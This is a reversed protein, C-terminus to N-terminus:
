FLDMHLMARYVEAEALADCLADHPNSNTVHFKRCLSALGVKNFPVKEGAFAARDNMSLALLMADRAHPHFLKDVLDVGLWAKLFSAEFAWNHALPVLTKGFPLDLREWWEILLDAVKGPEPAHFVLEELNLGHIFGARRDAREPHLPKFPRTWRM